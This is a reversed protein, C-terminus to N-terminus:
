MTDMASGGASASNKAEPHRARKNQVGLAHAIQTLLHIITAFQAPTGGREGAAAVAGGPSPADGYAGTGRGARQRERILAEGLGGGFGEAGTIATTGTGPPKAVQRPGAAGGYVTAASIGGPLLNSLLNAAFGQQRTLFEFSMEHFLDRQADAAEEMAAQQEAILNRLRKWELTGRKVHRQREQLYAIYRRRAAVEARQNKTTQAFEIDLQFSQGVLDELEQRTNVLELKIRRAADTGKKAEALAELLERIRQQYLKKIQALSGTQKLIDLKLSFTARLSEQLDANLSQIDANAQILDRTYGAVAEARTKADQITKRARERAQIYFDRLAIQARLDDKLGESAQAVLLRNQRRREEGTLADLIRQDAENRAKVLDDAAAKSDAEMGKKISEIQARLDSVQKAANNVAEENIKGEKFLRKKRALGSEAKELRQRLIALAGAEDGAAEALAQQTALSFTRTFGAGADQGAQEGALGAQSFFDFLLARGVDPTLISGLTTEITHASREAAARAEHEAQSTLFVLSDRSFGPKIKIEFRDFEKQLNAMEDPIFGKDIFAEIQIADPAKGLGVVVRELGELFTRLRVAEDSNGILGDKLQRIRKVVAQTGQEKGIKQLEQAFAGTNDVSKAIEANYLEVSKLAAGVVGEDFSELKLLKRKRALQELSEVQRIFNGGTTLALNRADGFFDEFFGQGPGKPGKNGEAVANFDELAATADQLVGVVETGTDVVKELPTLLSEGVVEGFTQVSNKFAELRGSFGQTRAGALEAALGQQDIADRMTLLGDTNERGLIAQARIARTGFITALAANRQAPAVDALANALDAFVTPRVRGLSDLVRINLKELVEAAKDTPAILRILAVRLATGAEQGQIGNKALLALMSITDEISLGAQRAVSAVSSLAGGMEGIGGQAENAAGALLDAVHVATEGALGFANLASATINTAEANDLQAATALQLTGRAAAMSDEVSLGAKALETMAEAADNASVAPLTIDAGLEKARASVLEMEEATAHATQRFVNLETELDAALGVSKFFGVAAAAGVLFESSAALTAGRAGIAALATALFGRQMLSQSAAAKKAAAANAQEAATNASLEATSEAAAVATAQLAAAQAELAPVGLKVAADHAETAIAATEEAFAKKQAAAAAATSADAGVTMVQALRQEVTALASVIAAGGIQTEVLRLREAILGRVTQLEANEAAITSAVGTQLNARATAEANLLRVSQEETTALLKNLITQEEQLVVQRAITTQLAASVTARREQSSRILEESASLQKNAGAQGKAAGTGEKRKRGLAGTAAAVQPLIVAGRALERNLIAEEAAQAIGAKAAESRALGLAAGPATGRTGITTVPIKLSGGAATLLQTELSRVSATPSKLVPTVPITFKAAAFQQQLARKYPTLVPKIPVSLPTKKLDASLKTRVTGAFSKLSTPEPRIEVFASAFLNEAM